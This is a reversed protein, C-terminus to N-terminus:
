GSFKERHSNQVLNFFFLPSFIVLIELQKLLTAHSRTMVECLGCVFQVAVYKGEFFQFVSELSNQLMSLSYRPSSLQAFMPSQFVLYTPCFWIFLCLNSLICRSLKGVHIWLKPYVTRDWCSFQQNKNYEPIQHPSFISFLKVLCYIGM